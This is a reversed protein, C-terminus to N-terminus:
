PVAGAELEGSILGRLFHMSAQNGSSLGLENSLDRYPSSSPSLSFDGFGVLGKKNLGIKILFLVLFSFSSSVCSFGYVIM